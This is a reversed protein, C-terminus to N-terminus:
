HYVASLDYHNQNQLFLVKKLFMVGNRERYTKRTNTSAGPGARCWLFEMRLKWGVGVKDDTRGREEGVKLQQRKNLAM